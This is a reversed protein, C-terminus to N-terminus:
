WLVKLIGSWGSSLSVYYILADRDEASFSKISNDRLQIM